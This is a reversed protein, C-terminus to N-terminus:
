PNTKAELFEAVLHSWTANPSYSYAAWIHFGAHKGNGPATPRWEGREVMWRKHRHEICVGCEECVYHATEPNNDRWRLHSWKLYQMHGCDPCPVFYRRQDSENFMREIRSFDKVTPTSGAVIKRNWYYETRRIGLKIQDGETGASAPYGDVEDFLVVRRSVRRFGRPSNAGVLSLTGGPFAKGLITNAGDKAKADSVVGRLVPTDRIMPAIEEKSYGQADEITPQVVMIPCPDQHIHFGIAHNVMKTYGVRASKMVTIQEVSPDTFADMMGKQYPLTRWRGAEASSEASLFAFRDAWQSLTLREPPKFAALAKLSLEQVSAV